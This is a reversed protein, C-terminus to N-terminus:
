HRATMAIAVNNDVPVEDLILRLLRSLDLM